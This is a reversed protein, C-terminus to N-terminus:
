CIGEWRRRGREVRDIGLMFAATRLSVKGANRACCRGPNAGFANNLTKDWSKGCAISAGSTLVSSEAGM